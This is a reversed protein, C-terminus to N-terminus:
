VSYKLSKTVEMVAGIAEPQLSEDGPPAKVWQFDGVKVAYGIVQTVHPQSGYASTTRSLQAPAWRCPNRAHQAAHWNLAARM